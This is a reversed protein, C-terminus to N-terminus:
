DFLGPQPQGLNRTKVTFRVPAGKYGLAEVVSRKGRAEAIVKVLRGGRLLRSSRGTYSALGGPTVVWRSTKRRAM